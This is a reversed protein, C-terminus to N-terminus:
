SVATFLYWVMHSSLQSDIRADPFLFVLLDTIVNGECLSPSSSLLSMCRTGAGATLSMYLRTNDLGPTLLGQSRLRHDSELVQPRGWGDSAGKGERGRVRARSVVTSISHTVPLSNDHLLRNDTWRWDGTLSKVSLRRYGLIISWQSGLFLDELFCEIKLPCKRPQWDIKSDQFKSGKSM